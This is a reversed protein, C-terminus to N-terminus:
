GKTVVASSPPSSDADRGPREKGRFRGAVWQVPPQTPGLALRYLHPFYWGWRSEIEPGDLGYVTAKGLVSGPGGFCMPMEWKWPCWSFQRPYFWVNRVSTIFNFKSPCQLVARYRSLLYRRLLAQTTCLRICCKYIIKKGIKFLFNHIWSIKCSIECNWDQYFVIFRERTILHPCVSMVFKIPVHKFAEKLHVLIVSATSKHFLSLPSKTRFNFM